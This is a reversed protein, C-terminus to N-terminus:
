LSYKVLQWKYGNQMIENHQLENLSDVPGPKFIGIDYYNVSYVKNNYFYPAAIQDNILDATYFDEPISITKARGTKWNQYKETITNTKLNYLVVDRYLLFYGPRSITLLVESENLKFVKEIFTYHARLDQSNNSMFDKSYVTSKYTVKEKATDNELLKQKLDKWESAIISDTRSEFAYNSTRVSDPFIPVISNSIPALNFDYKFVRGSLGAFAYIYKSDNTVWNITMHGMAVGPFKYVLSKEVKESKLNFISMHMGSQGDGPHYNYLSYLLVLSDNLRLAFRFDADPDILVRSSNHPFFLIKGFGVFVTFDKGPIIDTIFFRRPIPPLSFSDVIKESGLDLKKVKFTVLTDSPAIDDKVYLYMINGVGKFIVKDFPPVKFDIRGPYTYISKDIKYQGFAPIAIIGLILFFFLNKM